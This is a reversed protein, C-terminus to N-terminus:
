KNYEIMDKKKITNKKFINTTLAYITKPDM